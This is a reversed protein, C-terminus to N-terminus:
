VSIPRQVDPLRRPAVIASYSEINHHQAAIITTIYSMINHYQMAIIDNSCSAISYFFKKKKRKVKRKSTTEEVNAKAGIRRALAGYFFLFLCFVLLLSLKLSCFFIIKDVV